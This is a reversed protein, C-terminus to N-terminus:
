RKYSKIKKLVKKQMKKLKKLYMSRKLNSVSDLINIGNIHDFEHQVVVANLDSLTGDINEGVPTKFRIRIHKSREVDMRLGPASLCGETYVVKEESYEYIEPNVVKIPGSGVDAVLIARPDNVQIGSLGVGNLEYMKELMRDMHADLEPGFEEETVQRSKGRLKPSPVLVIKLDESM